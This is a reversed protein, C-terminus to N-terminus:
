DFYFNYQTHLVVCFISCIEGHDVHRLIFPFPPFPFFVVLWTEFVGTSPRVSPNKQITTTFLIRYNLLSMTTSILKIDQDNDNHPSMYLRQPFCLTMEDRTDNKTRAYTSTHTNTSYTRVCTPSAPKADVFAAVCLFVSSSTDFKNYKNNNTNDNINNNKQPSFFFGEGWSCFLLFLSPLFGDTDDM